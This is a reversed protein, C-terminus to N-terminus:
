MGGGDEMVADVANRLHLSAGNRLYVVVPGRQFTTREYDSRRYAITRADATTPHVCAVFRASRATVVATCTEAGSRTGAEKRSVVSVDQEGLAEVLADVDFAADDGADLSVPTLLMVLSLLISTM